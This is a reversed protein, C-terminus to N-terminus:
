NFCAAECSAYGTQKPSIEIEWRGDELKKLACTGETFDKRSITCVRHPKLTRAIKTPLSVSLRNRASKLAPTSNLDRWEKNRSSCYEFKNNGSNFRISKDNSISCPSDTSILRMAGGVSLDGRATQTNILLKREKLFHGKQDARRVWASSRKEVKKGLGIGKLTYCTEIREDTGITIFLKISREIIKVRKNKKNLFEIEFHARTTGGIVSVEDDDQQLNIEKIKLSYDKTDKFIQGKEFIPFTYENNNADSLHQFIEKISRDNRSRKDRFTESCAKPNSLVNRVEDIFYVTEFEETTKLALGNQMQMLRIISATVAGFIAIAILAQLMISGKQNKSIM